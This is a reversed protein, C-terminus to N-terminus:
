AILYAPFHTALRVSLKSDFDISIQKSLFFQHFHRHILDSIFEFNEADDIILLRNSVILKKSIDYREISETNIL